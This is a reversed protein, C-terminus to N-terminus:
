DLKNILKIYKSRYKRYHGLNYKNIAIVDGSLLHISNLSDTNIVIKTINLWKQTGLAYLANLICQIEAETSSKIEGSKLPGSQMIKGLNSVIWFAFAGVKYKSHYAADTNITVVM